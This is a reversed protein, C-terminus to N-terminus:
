LCCRGAFPRRGTERGGGNAVLIDLRGFESAVRDVMPKATATNTQEAHIAIARSGKRKLKEVVADAKAASAVYSIAVDAGQHALTEAVVAGLGRSRVPARHSTVLVRSAIGAAIVDCRRRACAVVVAVLVSSGECRFPINGKGGLGVGAWPILIREEVPMREHPWLASLSRWQLQATYCVKCDGSRVEDVGSAWIM